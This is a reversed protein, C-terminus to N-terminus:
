CNEVMRNKGFIHELVEETTYYVAIGLEEEKHQLEISSIIADAEPLNPDCVIEQLEEITKSRYYQIKEENTM